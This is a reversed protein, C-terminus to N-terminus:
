YLNRKLIPLDENIEKKSKKGFYNEIKLPDIGTDSRKFIINKPSITPSEPQTDTLFFRGFIILSLDISKTTTLPSFAAVSPTPIVSFIVFSNNFEPTSTM